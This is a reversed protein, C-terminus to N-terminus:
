GETGKETQTGLEMERGRGKFVFPCVCLESFRWLDFSSLVCELEHPEHSDLRVM